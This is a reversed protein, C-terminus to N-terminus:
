ILMVRSTAVTPRLVLLASESGVNLASVDVAASDPMKRVMM